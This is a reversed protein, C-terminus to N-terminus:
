RTKRHRASLEPQRSQLGAATRQHHQASFVHTETLLMNETPYLYSTAFGPFFSTAGGDPREACRPHYRGSLHDMDSFVHDIKMMWQRDLFHDNYDSIRTGFEVDKRGGGMVVNFPQSDAVALGAISRYLDVRPNTGKPFMADLTAWGNATPTVLNNSAGGHRRQDQFSGFFFTKNKIIPGGVTFGYWQETGPLPEGRAAIKPSLSQTNTIADDNTVDLLYLVSGHLSNTGSKTITNVVAGGARGYEADFNTTQVSVEAVSDPNTIQMLQGAVSVDNNETGDVMFNNSRGRSGNVAFTNAGANFRNTSVGPLTLAFQAVDRNAMPLEAVTISNISGGRVAAEYQLTVTDAAVEVVSQTTGVELRVDRALTAGGEVILGHQVFTQFGAATAKLNYEGLDVADFRYLGAENTNHHAQRRDASRRNGRDRGTHCRNASGYRNRNGHRPQNPGLLPCRSSFWLRPCFCPSRASCNPSTRLLDCKAGELEFTPGVAM